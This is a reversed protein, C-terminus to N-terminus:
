EKKKQYNALYDELLKSVIKSLTTDERKVHEYMKRILDIDLTVSTCAKM